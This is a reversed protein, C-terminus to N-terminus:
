PSLKPQRAQWEAHAKAEWSVQEQELEARIAAIRQEQERRNLGKWEEEDVGAPPRSWPGAYMNEQTAYTGEPSPHLKLFRVDPHRPREPEGEEAWWKRRSVDLWDSLGTAAIELLGHRGRRLESLAQHPDFGLKTATLDFLVELFTIQRLYFDAAVVEGALRAAREAAVKRMFKSAIGAVLQWKEADDIEPRASDAAADGEQAISAAPPYKRRNDLPPPRSGPAVAEAPPAREAKRRKALAIAADWSARFSAGGPSRYLKRVGTETKGMEDAAHGPSGHVALRAIFERQLEPTWAGEVVRMRPVPEFDLLALIEPDGPTAPEVDNAPILSDSM